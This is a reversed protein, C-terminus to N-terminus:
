IDHSWSGLILCFNLVRKVTVPNSEWVAKFCLSKGNLVRADGPKLIINDIRLLM